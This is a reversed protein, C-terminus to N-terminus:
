DRGMGLRQIQGIVVARASATTDSASLARYADATAGIGTQFDLRNRWGLNRQALGSDLLLLKAEHYEPVQNEIAIEGGGWAMAFAEAVEYVTLIQENDPGFNWGCAFDPGGEVLARALMLYGTLPELVHQWPRVADPYRIHLPDNKLFARVADPILRDESWDGGGIVNGSRASAVAVGHDKYNDINFFSTRYSSTVIEACAKSASYPDCGGLPDNERYSWGWGKNEYCKDTTVVLVASLDPVNRCADLFNATGQVNAEFTELPEVYSRRVLPQAAMHIAVHPRADALAARLRDLDRIDAVVHHCDGAVGLGDFLNPDTEPALAYGFVEAGMEALWLTLWSGKFGTHGTMFVRKGKWFATDVSFRDPVVVM